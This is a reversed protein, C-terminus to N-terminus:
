HFVDQKMQAKAEANTIRNIQNDAYIGSDMRVKENCSSCYKSLNKMLISSSAYAGYANDECADEGELMAGTWISKMDKGNEDLFPVPCTAHMWNGHEDESHRAEHYIVMLRAIQPHSFRIYNDTIMMHHSDTWPSVCAVAAGGGCSSKSVSTIRTDFWTKYGPGSMAGFIEQHLPSVTTGSLTLVFQVDDQLQQAVEPPVNPDVTFAHASSTVVLVSLFTFLTKM